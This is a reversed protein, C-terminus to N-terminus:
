RVTYEMTLPRNHRNVSLTIHSAGRLKTFLELAKDVNSIDQNNIARIVDGNRIGLKYYVSYHRVAYLRYGDPKGNKLNPLIRAGRGAVAMNAIFSNLVKRDVEYKYPGLKKIGKAYRDVGTHRRNKWRTAGPTTPKVPEKNKGGKLLDLFEVKGDRRLEVRRDTVNIVDAKGLKDGLGVLLIREPKDTRVVALSWLPDDPSVFTALLKADMASAVAGPGEPTATAECTSCFINRRAVTYRSKYLKPKSKHRLFSLGPRHKPEEPAVVLKAEVLNSVVLGGIVSCVAILALEVVYFHNRFFEILKKM